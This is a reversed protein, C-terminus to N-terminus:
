KSNKLSSRSRLSSIWCNIARASNLARWYIVFKLIVVKGGGEVITFITGTDEGVFIEHDHEIFEM